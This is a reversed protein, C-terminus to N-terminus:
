KVPMRDAKVPFVKIARVRSLPCKTQCIGCGTCREPDVYPRLVIKNDVVEEKIIIAKQPIPCHEECVLCEKNKAWPLCLNRDIKAVGLKLKQKKALPFRPIAGTPCVQGCLNCNFECYGVQPVLQPTWIGSLGSQLMVPQLANTPCVKM